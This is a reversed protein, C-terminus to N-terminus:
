YSVVLLVLINVMQVRNHSVSDSYTVWRSYILSTTWLETYAESNSLFFFRYLTPSRMPWFTTFIFSLYLWDDSFGSHSFYRFYCNYYWSSEWSFITKVWSSHCCIFYLTDRPRGRLPSIYSWNERSRRTQILLGWLNVTLLPIPIFTLEEAQRNFSTVFGPWFSLWSSGVNQSRISLSPSVSTQIFLYCSM